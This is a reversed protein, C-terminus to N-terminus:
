GMKKNDYADPQENHDRCHDRPCAKGPDPKCGGRKHFHYWCLQVTTGNVDKQGYVAVWKGINIRRLADSPSFDKPVKPKRPSDKDNRRKDSVKNGNKALQGKVAKSIMDALKKSDVSSSQFGHKNALRRFHLETNQLADDHSLFSKWDDTTAQTDSYELVQSPPISKSGVSVSIHSSLNEARIFVRSIRRIFRPLKVGMVQLQPMSAAMTRLKDMSPFDWRVSEAAIITHIGM